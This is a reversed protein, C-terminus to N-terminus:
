TLSLLVVLLPVASFALALCSDKAVPFLVPNSTNSVLALQSRVPLSVLRSIGPPDKSLDFLASAPCCSSSLWCVVESLSISFNGPASCDRARVIKAVICSMVVRTPLADARRPQHRNSPQVTICFKKCGRCNQAGPMFAEERCFATISKGSAAQRSLHNRWTSEKSAILAPKSM